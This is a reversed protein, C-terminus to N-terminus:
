SAAVRQGGAGIGIAPSGASLRGGPNCGGTAAVDGVADALRDPFRDIGFAIRGIHRRHGPRARDDSVEQGCARRPAGTDPEHDPPNDAHVL